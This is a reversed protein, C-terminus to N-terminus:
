FPCAEADSLRALEGTSREFIVAIFDRWEQQTMTALDTKGIGELYEGAADSAALLAEKEHKTPNLMDGVRWYHTIIDLCQMSCARDLKRFPDGPNAFQFGRHDRRCVSCSM